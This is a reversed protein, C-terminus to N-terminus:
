RVWRFGIVCLRYISGSNKIAVVLELKWAHEFHHVRIYIRVHSTYLAIYLLWITTGVIFVSFTNTIFVIVHCCWHHRIRLFITVDIIIVATTFVFAIVSYIDYILIYVLNTSMSIICWINITTIFLSCCIYIIINGIVIIVCIAIVAITALATIDTQKRWKPLLRVHKVRYIIVSSVQLHCVHWMCLLFNVIIAIINTLIDIIAVVIIAIVIITIDITNQTNNYILWCICLISVLAFEFTM